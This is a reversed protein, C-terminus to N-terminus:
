GGIFRSDFRSTASPKYIQPIPGGWHGKLVAVPVDHNFLWMTLEGNKLRVNVLVKRSM